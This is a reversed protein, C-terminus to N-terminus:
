RQGEVFFSQKLSFLDILGRAHQTYVMGLGQFKILNPQLVTYSAMELEPTFDGTM